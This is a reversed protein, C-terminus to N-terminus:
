EQSYTLGCKQCIWMSQWHRYLQPWKQSNFQYARFLFFALVAYAIVNLATGTFSKGFFMAVIWIAVPIIFASRYRKKPPPAARAALLSTSTGSTTTTASGLGLGGSGVGVGVSNSRTNITSTGNQYAVSLRQTNESGCSKCQM